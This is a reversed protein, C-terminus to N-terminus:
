ASREAARDIAAVIQPAAVHHPMHGVDEIITTGARPLMAALRMTHRRPDVIGDRDGSVLEVPVDISSYAGAIQAVCGNLATLDEADALLQSPRLALEVALSEAFGAPIPNPAFIRRMIEPAALRALRPWLIQSVLTGFLRIQPLAYLLIAAHRGPFAWGALVILASLDQPFSAAYALAMAGGWSHGVIIPREASLAAVAKRVLRAQALPGTCQGAIRTSHGFGPRDFVITRYREALMGALPSALFEVGTGGAGHLFVLPRGRGREVYHLEVGDVSLFRGVPLLHAAPTIRTDGKAAPTRARAVRTTAVNGLRAAPSTDIAQM